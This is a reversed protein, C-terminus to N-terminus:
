TDLDQVLTRIVKKQAETLTDQVNKPYALLLHITERRVAYYYIVRSGGSKGRGPLAVRIKRAGGTGAVTAGSEPNALLMDQLDDMVSGIIGAATATATFVRSEVFTFLPLSVNTV